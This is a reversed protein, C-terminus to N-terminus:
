TEAAKGGADTSNSTPHLGPGIQIYNIRQYKETGSIIYGFELQTYIVILMGSVIPLNRVVAM